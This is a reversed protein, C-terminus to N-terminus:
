LGKIFTAIILLLWAGVILFVAYPALPAFHVMRYHVLVGAAGAVLAIIWTPNKPASLKM